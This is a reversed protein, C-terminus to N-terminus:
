KANLSWDYDLYEVKIEKQHKKLMELLEGKAYKVLFGLTDDNFDESYWKFIPSVYLTNGELRNSEPDNIFAETM